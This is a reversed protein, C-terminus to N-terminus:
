ASVYKALVKKFETFGNAFKYKEDIAVGLGYLFDNIIMEDNYNAYGVQKDYTGIYKQLDEIIRKVRKQKKTMIAM